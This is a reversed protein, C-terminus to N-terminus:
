TKIIGSIILDDFTIPKPKNRPKDMKRDTGCCVSSIDLVSSTDLVNGM